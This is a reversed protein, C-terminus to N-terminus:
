QFPYERLQQLKSQNNARQQREFAASRAQNLQGSRRNMFSISPQTLGKGMEYMALRTYNQIIGSVAKYASTETQKM